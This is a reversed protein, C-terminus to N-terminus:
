VAQEKLIINHSAYLFCIHGLAHWSLWAAVSKLCPQLEPSFNGSNNYIVANVDDQSYGDRGIYHQVLENAGDSGHDWSIEQAMALLDKKNASYFAVLDDNDHTFGAWGQNAGSGIIDIHMDNFLEQGGIQKILNNALTTTLHPTKNEVFNEIKADLLDTKDQTTTM